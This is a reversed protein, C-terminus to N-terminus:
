APSLAGLSDTHVYQVIFQLLSELSIRIRNTIAYYGQTTQSKKKRIQLKSTKVSNM